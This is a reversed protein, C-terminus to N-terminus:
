YGSTESGCATTNASQTNGRWKPCRKPKQPQRKDFKQLLLFSATPRICTSTRGFVATYLAVYTALCPLEKTTAHKAESGDWAPQAKYTQKATTSVMDTRRPLPLSLDDRTRKSRGTPRHLFGVTRCSVTSTKAQAASRKVAEQPVTCPLLRRFPVNLM